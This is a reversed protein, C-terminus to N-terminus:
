SRAASTRRSGEDEDMSSDVASRESDSTLESDSDNQAHVEDKSLGLKALKRPSTPAGEPTSCFDSM